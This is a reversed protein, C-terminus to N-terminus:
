IASTQDGSKINSDLILTEFAKGEEGLVLIANKLKYFIVCREKNNDWHDWTFCFNGNSKVMWKGHDTQPENDPKNAFGGKVKGDASFYGTFSNNITQGDLTATDVTTITKDTIAKKVESSSMSSLGAAHGVSAISLLSVSLILLRKM